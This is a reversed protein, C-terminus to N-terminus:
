LQPVCLYVFVSIVSSSFQKSLAFINSYQLAAICYLLSRSYVQIMGVDNAGDGVALTVANRDHRRVLSVLEAKQLPSMRCCIVAKSSLLLELLDRRCDYTLGYKLTQVM